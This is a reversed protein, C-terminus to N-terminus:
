IATILIMNVIMGIMFTFSNLVYSILFGNKEKNKLCIKFIFGEVLFVIIELILLIIVNEFISNSYSSSIFNYSLNMLPNTFVNTLMVYVIDIKRLGLIRALIVELVITVLLCILIIEVSM